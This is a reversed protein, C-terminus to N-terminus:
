TGSKEDKTGGDSTSGDTPHTHSGGSCHGAFAPATSLSFAALGLLLIVTKM